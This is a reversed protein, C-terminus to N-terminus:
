DEQIVLSRLLALVENASAAPHLLATDVAVAAMGASAAGGPPAVHAMSWEPFDRHGGTQSSLVTVDGHRPDRQIREFIQEIALKPGELAQAFYGSDFLLAGTVNQEKNNRRSTQLIQNIEADRKVNEGEILNKSCYLIKYVDSNM